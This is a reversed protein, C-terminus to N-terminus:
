TQDDTVEVGLIGTKFDKYVGRMEEVRPSRWGHKTQRFPLMQCRFWVSVVDGVINTEVDLVSSDHITGGDGYYRGPKALEQKVAWREGDTMSKLLEKAMAQNREWVKNQESLKADFEEDSYERYKNQKEDFM